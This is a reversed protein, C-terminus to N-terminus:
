AEGRKARQKMARELLVVHVVVSSAPFTWLALFGRVALRPSTEIREYIRRAVQSLFALWQGLFVHLLVASLSSVVRPFLPINTM